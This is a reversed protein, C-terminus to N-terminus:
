FMPAMLVTSQVIENNDEDYGLMQFTTGSNTGANIQVKFVINDFTILLDGTNNYNNSYFCSQQTRLSWFKRM